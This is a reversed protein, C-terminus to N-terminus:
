GAGCSREPVGRGHIRVIGPGGVDGEVTVTGPLFREVVGANTVLHRTVQATRLVSEGRVPVLPLLLQDALRADVAGDGALFAELADVAEDAVREAPKGREGLAQFCAQTHEFEAILLLVTGQSVAPLSRCELSLDECRGSLRALARDRQREAISGPLKAVASFGHIRRLAGRAELCLPSLDPARGVAAHVIGGGQPYFGAREMELDFRYGARDTFRRWHLDLYHHCPSWPVHTGGTVTVRSGEAALALPVLLTQLVLSVSGATGIDFRYDGPVLDSPEFVLTQSGPEAGEVRARGIAAAARVALLHQPKLGPRPRRARINILRVGRGTMLSLSLATRLVQGGGEGVSGDIRIPASM